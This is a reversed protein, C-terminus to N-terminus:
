DGSLFFVVRPTTYNWSLYMTSKSIRHHPLDRTEDGYGFVMIEPFLSSRIFFTYHERFCFLLPILVLLVAEIELTRSIM